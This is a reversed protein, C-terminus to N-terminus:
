SNDKIQTSYCEDYSTMGGTDATQLLLFSGGSNALERGVDGYDSQLIADTIETIGSDDFQTSDCVCDSTCM